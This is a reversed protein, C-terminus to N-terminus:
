TLNLEKEVIKNMSKFAMAYTDSSVKFEDYARDQAQKNELAKM